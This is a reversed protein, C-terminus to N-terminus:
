GTDILGSVSTTPRVLGGVPTHYIMKTRTWYGNGTAKPYADGTCNSYSPHYTTGTRFGWAGNGYAQCNVLTVNSDAGSAMYGHFYGAGFPNKWAEDNVNPDTSEKYKRGNNNAVCNIFHVGIRKVRNEFHFGSEWSEYAECNSITMNQVTSQTDEDVPISDVECLCFGTAWGGTGSNHHGARSSFCNDILVDKFTLGKLLEGWFEVGFSDTRIFMSNKLTVNECYYDPASPLSPYHGTSDAWGNTDNDVGYPCIIRLGFGSGGTIDYAKISDILLNNRSVVWIGSGTYSFNDLQVGVLGWKWNVSSAGPNESAMIGITGSLTLITRDMGWGHIRCYNKNITISTASLTTGLLVTDPLYIDGGTAPLSTIATQFNAGTPNYEIKGNTSISTIKLANITSTESPPLLSKIVNVMANWDAAYEYSVGDIKIDDWAM